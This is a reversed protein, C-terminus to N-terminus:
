SIKDLLQKKKENFENETIIGEDRLNALERLQGTVSEQNNISVQSKIIKSSKIANVISFEKEPILDNFIQFDHKDFFLSHRENGEFYNLITERSDHTILRSKIENVKQRSNIVAGAPGAIFGGVVAKSISSGGGGGGSIKNETFVKGTKSFHEIQSISVLNIKLTAISLSDVTVPTCPFFCINGDSKWIYVKQYRNAM